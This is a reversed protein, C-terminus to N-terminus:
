RKRKTHDAWGLCRDEVPVAENLEETNQPKQTTTCKLMEKNFKKTVLDPQFTCEELEDKIRQDDIVVKMALSNEVIQQKWEMNKEYFGSPNEKVKERLIEAKQEQTQVKKKKQVVRKKKTKQKMKLM